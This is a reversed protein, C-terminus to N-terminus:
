KYKLIYMLKDKDVTKVIHSVINNNAFVEDYKDLELALNIYTWSDFSENDNTLNPNIKIAIYTLAIMISRLYCEKISGKHVKLNM